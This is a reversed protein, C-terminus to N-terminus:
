PSSPHSPQIEPSRLVAAIDEPVRKPALDDGVCALLTEGECIRVDSLSRTMVYGFEVTVRTVGLCTTELVLSEDFRAAKRFRVRTEVVPLHIGRKVWSEYSIGRRRLWDVRGAEFYILYNAHHVIGMLDTECFRVTITTQSTLYAPTAAKDGPLAM